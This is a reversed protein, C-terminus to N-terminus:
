SSYGLASEHVARAAEPGLPARGLNTHLVVGTANIVRRARSALLQEARARVERAVWEEAPVEGSPDALLAQRREEIAARVLGVVLRPGLRKRAEDLEPLGTVRDVRPLRQVPSGAM